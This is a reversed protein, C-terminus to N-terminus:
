FFDQIGELVLDSEVETKPNKVTIKHKVKPMTNFFEQIKLFQDHSMSEIFEDLEKEEMDNKTYVNEADYIQSICSKIIGFTATADNKMDLKAVNNMKPYDFIVGVSDNIKINNTHNEEKECKVESLNVDVSVKTEMDDPCTVTINATEGISKCRLQLFVYELDFTPLKKSDLKNFTCVDVIDQIARILSAQGGDQQALMLMKEEKVLFPRFEVKQNTSPLTLEYKATALKPLAM